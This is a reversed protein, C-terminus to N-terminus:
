YPICLSNPTNSGPGVTISRDDLKKVDLQVTKVHVVCGFMRLHHMSLKKNHWVEYPTKGDLSKTTSRNLLYVATIVAERWFKAPVNMSKLLSCAMAVVTQNRREVM